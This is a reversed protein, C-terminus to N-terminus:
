RIVLTESQRSFAHAEPFRKRVNQMVADWGGRFRDLLGPPDGGLPPGHIVVITRPRIVRRVVDALDPQTLYHASLLAVDIGMEGLQLKPFEAPTVDGDGVHMIRRGGVDVVWGVNIPVRERVGHPLGLAYITAAGATAVRVRTAPAPDVAVLRAAMAATAAPDVARVKAVAEPSSIFTAGSNHRLHDFVPRADFHDNHIHTALVANVRDFPPLARELATRTPRTVAGYGRLGDGFLADILVHTSGSSLMVGENALFTIVLSDRPQDAGPASRQAHGPPAVAFAAGALLVIATRRPSRLM